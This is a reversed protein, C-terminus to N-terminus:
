QQPVESLFYTFEGRQGRRSLRGNQKVSDKYIASRINAEEVDPRLKVIEQIIASGSLGTPKGRLVHAVLEPVSM